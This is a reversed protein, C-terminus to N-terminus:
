ECGVRDASGRGSATVLEKEFRKTELELKRNQRRLKEKDLDARGAIRQERSEKNTPQLCDAPKKSRGPKGQCSVAASLV